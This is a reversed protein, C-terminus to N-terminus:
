KSKSRCINSSRRRRKNEEEKLMKSYYLLIESAEWSFNRLDDILNHIDLNFPIKVV